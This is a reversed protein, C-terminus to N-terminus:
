KMKKMKVKLSKKGGKEKEHGKEKEGKEEIKVFGGSVLAERAVANIIRFRDPGLKTGGYWRSVIVVVNWVDMLQTLHLLRGGAATEGDDDCDQQVTSGTKIRYASINHTAGAVKKDTTLLHAIAAAAEDKSSVPACRATFVSKKETISESLTWKPPPSQATPPTAIAVDDDNNATEEEAAAAVPDASRAETVDGSANATTVENGGRHSRDELLDLLLPSAEEIVDFLCVQGPAWVRALVDRLIEVAAAATGEGEGKSSSQTSQIASIVPPSGSDPYEPPFAIAFSFSFSPQNPFNLLTTKLNGSETEDSETKKGSTTFSTVLSLTDAGYISNIAEIEDALANSTVGTSNM